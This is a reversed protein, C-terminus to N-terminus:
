LVADGEEPVSRTVSEVDNLSISSCQRTVDMVTVLTGDILLETAGLTM